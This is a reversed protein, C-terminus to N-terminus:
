EQYSNLNLEDFHRLQVGSNFYSCFLFPKVQAIVQVLKPTYVTLRDNSICFYIISLKMLAAGEELHADFGLKMLFSSHKLNIYM